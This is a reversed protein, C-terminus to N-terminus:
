KDTLQVLLRDQAFFMNIDHKSLYKMMKWAITCVCWCICHSKEKRCAVTLFFVPNIVQCARSLFYSIKIIDITFFDAQTSPFSDQNIAEMRYVISGLCHIKVQVDKKRILPMLCIRSTNVICKKLSYLM